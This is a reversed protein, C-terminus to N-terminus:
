SKLIRKIELYLNKNFKQNYKNITKEIFDPEIQKFYSIQGLLVQTELISWPSGNTLDQLFTYITARFREKKRYGITIKNDKNLMLGLNWNRGASSGYRTKEAKLVFPTNLQRFIDNIKREIMQPNFNFKSSILMDDAYRTYVFHKRDFNFLTKTIHYDIPVMIINTLLPSIPTGQPLKNNLLCLKILDNLHEKAEPCAYILNFPFIQELQQTIFEFSCSPFFDKIDLKLFWKSENEQHKILADKISRQKVYAFAANHPLIHLKDEFFTKIKNIAKKLDENPADIQRMGGSAKPILFSYYYPSMDEHLLSIVEQHLYYLNNIKDPIEYNQALTNLDEATPDYYTTKTPIYKPEYFNLTLTSLDTSFLDDFSIKPTFPVKSTIYM